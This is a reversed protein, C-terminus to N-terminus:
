VPMIKKWGHFTKLPRGEDIMRRVTDKAVGANAWLFQLSDSEYRYQEQWEANFDVVAYKRPLQEPVRERLAALERAPDHRREAATGRIYDNTFRRKM